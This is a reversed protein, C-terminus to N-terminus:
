CQAPAPQPKSKPRRGKGAQNKRDKPWGLEVLNTVVNAVVPLNKSPTAEGPMYRTFEPLMQQLQKLTRCGNVISKLREQAQHRHDVKESWPKAVKDFDADGVILNHGQRDFLNYVTRYKLAKPAQKYARRAVPSMAKVLATQLDRRTQEDDMRPTDDMVARVFAQRHFITLNM